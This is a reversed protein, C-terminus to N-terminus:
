PQQPPGLLPTKIPAVLGVFQTLADGAFSTVWLNGSADVAVGFPESLGADLGL